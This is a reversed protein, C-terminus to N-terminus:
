TYGRYPSVSIKSEKAPQPNATAMRINIPGENRGERDMELGYFETSLLFLM